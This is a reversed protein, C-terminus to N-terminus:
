RAYRDRLDILTSAYIDAFSRPDLRNRTQIASARRKAEQRIKPYSWVEHDPSQVQPSRSARKSRDPSGQGKGRARRCAARDKSTRPHDCNTHDIM